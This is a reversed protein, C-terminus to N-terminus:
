DLQEITYGLDALQILVSDTGALHLAGVLIFEIEQTSLMLKIKELWRTNREVLIFQYLKPFENQMEEVAIEELTDVDGHRWSDLLKQWETKLNELDSLSSNVLKNPDLTSFEEIFGLQEDISELFGTQKSAHDARSSFHEDVGAATIELVQLELATLVISMGGPTYKTFNEIPINRNSLYNTLRTYTESNLETKLTRSDQFQLAASLKIQNEPLSLAAIDTEFVLRATDNFASEFANPLPYDDKALVHITGGIYLYNDDKSVKWVPAKCLSPSAFTLLLMSLLFRPKLYDM